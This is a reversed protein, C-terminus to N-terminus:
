VLAPWVGQSNNDHIGTKTMADVLQARLEGRLGPLRQGGHADDAGRQADREQAGM